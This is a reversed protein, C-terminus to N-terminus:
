ITHMPQIQLQQGSSLYVLYQAHLTIIICTSHFNIYLTMYHIFWTHNSHYGKISGAYNVDDSSGGSRGNDERQTAIASHEDQDMCSNGDRIVHVTSGDIYNASESRPIGCESVVCATIKEDIILIFFKVVDGTACQITHAHVSQVNQSITTIIRVM